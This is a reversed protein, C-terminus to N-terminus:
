RTDPEITINITDPLGSNKELSLGSYGKKDFYVLLPQNPGVSISVICFYALDLREPFNISLSMCGNLMGVTTANTNRVEDFPLITLDQMAGSLDHTLIINHKYKNTVKVEAVKAITLPLTFPVKFEDNRIQNSSIIMSPRSPQLPNEPNVPAIRIRFPNNADISETIRIGFYCNDRAFFLTKNQTTSFFTNFSYKENEPDFPANLPSTNDWADNNRRWLLDDDANNYSKLTAM